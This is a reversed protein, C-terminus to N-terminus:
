LTVVIKGFPGSDLRDMADSLAEFPYTSDIVPKLMTADVARVFDELARRHGVGIGQILASKLLLMGAPATVDAGELVGILSVRGQPAVATVSKAVNHGGVTDIVHDIGQNNTLKLVQQAWDGNLRNVGVDAGLARARALKDDSGSTIYVKAGQAKAIQLAFLAVGGTGQVLVTDGARMKGEEVLAFWATLGACPLTSAEADTLSAPASVLGAENFLRYQSLVGPFAGGLAADAGDRANGPRKGDVWQPSFSSIVRDGPRFRSVREGVSDIVGAMDSAPILPFVAPLHGEIILKDRYNLAVANVKVRVEFPGPQPLESEQLALNHRGTANMTWSLM